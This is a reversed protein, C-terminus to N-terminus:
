AAGGALEDLRAAMATAFAPDNIHLDLEHLEVSGALGGRLARFLAGDAGPDHFPQGEADIQSIGRLPVFVATPGTAASLKEALRRGLQACEGATTRMLTVAPGTGGDVARGDRDPPLRAGRFRAGAAVAPGGDRVAHHRRVDVRGAAAPRGAGAVAPSRVMGAIAGGAARAVEFRSIDPALGAPEHVGADVVLVEVGRATLQERVYAYEHGKTDLTDLLVVTAM